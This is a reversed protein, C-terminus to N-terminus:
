GGTRFQNVIKQLADAQESLQEASTASQEAGASTERTVSAIQEINQSITEAAASQEESATAIQQIMTMVRESMTVIENMVDNATLREVVPQIEDNAGTLMMFSVHETVAMQIADVNSRYLESMSDDQYQHNIILIATFTVALTVALVAFVKTKISLGKM